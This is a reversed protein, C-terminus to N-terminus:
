VPLIQYLDSAKADEYIRRNLVTMAASQNAVPQPLARLEFGSLRERNHFLDSNIACHETSTLQIKTQCGILCEKAFSISLEITKSEDVKNILRIM